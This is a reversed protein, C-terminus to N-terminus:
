RCVTISSYLEHGTCVIRLPDKRVICIDSISSHVSGLWSFGVSVQKLYLGFQNVDNQVWSVYRKIPHASGGIFM